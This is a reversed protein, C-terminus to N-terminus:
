LLNLQCPHQISAHNAAAVHPPIARYIGERGDRGCLEAFGLECLETVRPRVTFPTIGSKEALAMTTCPGLVSLANHVALRVGALCDRIEDWNANRIDTPIV